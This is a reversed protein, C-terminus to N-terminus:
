LMREVKELQERSMVRGSRNLALFYELVQKKEATSDVIAYSVGLTQFTNKDLGSLQNYYVGHYPIRNEYFAVLTSLRQKGDLIEYMNHTEFWVKSDQEVLVFKGIDLKSFISDLLYEKDKDAWVYDRQYDPDMNIGFFYYYHLLSQVTSNLFNLHLPNEKSFNYGAYADVPRVETWIASRMLPMADKKNKCDLFYAKGGEIVDTVVSEAFAGYLVKDGIRFRYTPEGCHYLPDKLMSLEREKAQQMIKDETLIKKKSM